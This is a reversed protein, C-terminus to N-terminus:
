FRWGVGLRFTEGLLGMPQFAADFSFRQVRLGVGAALGSIPGLDSVTRSSYGLRLAATVGPTLRREAEIGLKGYPDGAYPVDVELAPLLRWSEQLRMEYALSGAAEAPLPESDSIFRLNGGVHRFAGALILDHWDVPRFTAGGDVAVTTAQRTGLDESIVKLSLGASIEGTWPEREYGLPRDVYPVNWNDGFYDRAVDAPDNGSFQHGYAFAYVESHPSFSGLTQNSANVLDLSEQSLRTVAFAVVGRLLPVPAAVAGFDGHLGAPMESRTYCVEPRSMRALGAPNWYVADPGEAVASYAEGMGLARAGAGLRLFEAAATGVNTQLAGAEPALALLLIFLM